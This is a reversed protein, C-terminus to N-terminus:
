VVLDVIAGRLSSLDEPPSETQSAPAANSSQEPAPTDTGSATVANEEAKVPEAPRVSQAAPTLSSRAAFNLSEIPM